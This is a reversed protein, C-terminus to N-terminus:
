LGGRQFLNRRMERLEFDQGAQSAAAHPHNVLRPLFREVPEHGELDEGGLPFFIRLEGFAESALGLCM